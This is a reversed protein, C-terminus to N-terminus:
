PPRIGGAEACCAVSEETVGCVLSLYDERLEFTKLPLFSAPSLHFPCSSGRVKLSLLIALCPRPQRCLWSFTRPRCSDGEWGRHGRGVTHSPFGPLRRARPWCFASSPCALFTCGPPSRHGRAAPSRRRDGPHSDGAHAATSVQWVSTGCGCARAGGPRRGERPVRDRGGGSSRAGLTVPPVSAPLAAVPGSRSSAYM